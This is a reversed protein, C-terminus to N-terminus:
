VRLVSISVLSPILPPPSATELFRHLAPSPARDAEAPLAIAGLEQLALSAHWDMSKTLSQQQHPCTPDHHSSEGGRKHCHGSSPHEHSASGACMTTSCDAICQGGAFLLAVGLMAITRTLGERMLQINAHRAPFL